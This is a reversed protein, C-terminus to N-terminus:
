GREMYKWGVARSPAQPMGEECLHPCVWPQSLQGSIVSIELGVDREMTASHALFDFGSCRFSHNGAQTRSDGDPLLHGLAYGANVPKSWLHVDALRLRRCRTRSPRSATATSPSAEMTLYIRRQAECPFALEMLRTIREETEVDPRM